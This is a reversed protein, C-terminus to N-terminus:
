GSRYWRVCPYRYDRHLKSDASATTERTEKTEDSISPFYSLRVLKSYEPKKFRKLLTNWSTSVALYDQGWTLNSAWVTDPSDITSGSTPGMGELVFYFDRRNGNGCKAVYVNQLLCLVLAIYATTGRTRM